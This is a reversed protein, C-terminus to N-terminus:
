RKWQLSLGDDKTAEVLFVSGAHLVAGWSKAGETDGRTDHTMAVLGRM